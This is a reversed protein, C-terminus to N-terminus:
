ANREEPLEVLFTAGPGGPQLRLDGGHNAVIERSVSLGLGAGEPKTTYYADFVYPQTEAAIGPGEDAVTIRLRGDARRAELRVRGGPPSAEVANLLLNILVQEIQPADVDARLGADELAVTVEVSKQQSQEQVLSAARRLLPAVEQVHRDELAPRGFALLRALILDLRDIERMAAEVEGAETAGKKVKRDLLELTLRMSNLPNRIEHAVGAVVKGLAALRDQRRLEAELAARREAMHNIAQVIQGFDGGRAPLRHSFDEELRRLGGQISAVGRRLSVWISVIGVVGLLASLVLAGLWLRRRQGAPDRVGELRKMAWVLGGEPAIGRAAVVVLDREWAATLTVPDSKRRAREVVRGLHELEWATLQRKPAGERTPFAYGLIAGEEHFGGEVGQYSRLVAAALGALSVDRAAWPLSGVPEGAYAAREQHQRRLERCAARCQQAAEESLTEELRSVADHILIVALGAVSLSAASIVAVQWRLSSLGGKPM